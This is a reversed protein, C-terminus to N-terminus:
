GLPHWERGDRALLDDAAAPGASGADYSDPEGQGWADLLPQVARWGAEIQDARQFLSQDGTLLDYLLTEYGTQSSKGFHDAYRFDMSVPTVALVPGPKKAVFEQTIGEDPQLQLIMRNPPLAEVSSGRFLSLPAAKFQVVIETDRAALAKGTRLYFPVGSWRWSDVMVRMAVYTETRSDPAVNEAQTYPTVDHDGIRGAGYRGRVADQPQIPRVADLLKAREDRVEDAGMGNPPEMGILSLLAFLHNPVMDRLAGTGDYFGGRTGVDVTEAATIQVHDIYRNNWVAELLANGFRAVLINQVTEKGLFHDIRYIQTEPMRALLAADLAEASELDTGFPKEIVVRRFGDAEDLLGADALKAVVPEFFKPATALYFAVNGDLREALATYTAEDAFDGRLYSLRDRVDGWGDDGKVFDDLQDRFAADDVDHHSVGLVRTDPDLLGGRALNVLAPVLLRRTLDGLAGFIVVTAPPAPDAAAAESM